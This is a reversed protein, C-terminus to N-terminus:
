KAYIWGAKENDCRISIIGKYFHNNYKEIYSIASLIAFIGLLEGRYPDSTIGSTAVTGVINSSSKDDEIM